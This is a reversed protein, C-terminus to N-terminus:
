VRTGLPAFPARALKNFQEPSIPIPPEWEQPVKFQFPLLAGFTKYHVKPGITEGRLIQDILVKDIIQVLDYAKGHVEIEHTAIAGGTENRVAFHATIDHIYIQETLETPVNEIQALTDPYWGFTDSLDENPQSDHQIGTLIHAAPNQIGLKFNANNQNSRIATHYITFPKEARIEHVEDGTGQIGTTRLIDPGRTANNGLSTPDAARVFIPNSRAIRFFEALIKAGQGKIQEATPFLLVLVDGDPILKEYISKLNSNLTPM